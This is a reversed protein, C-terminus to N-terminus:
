FFISGPDKKGIGTGGQSRAQFNWFWFVFVPLSSFIVTGQHLDHACSWSWRTWQFECRHHRRRNHRSYLLQFFKPQCDVSAHRPQNYPCPMQPPRQAIMTTTVTLPWNSPWRIHRRKIDFKVSTKFHYCRAFEQLMTRNNSANDCTIHGIQFIILFIFVTSSSIWTVKLVINLRQCITYLAQGLTRGDHACNMQM